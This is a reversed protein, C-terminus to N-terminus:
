AHRAQLAEAVAKYALKPNCNEDFPLPRPRRAFGPIPVYGTFLWSEPDALEWTIVAKVAPVRLAVNLLDSYRRAVMADRLKPDNPFTKDEVDMETLYIDVKKDALQGLFDGFQQADYRMDSLWHCELGVIDIRSGADRLEDILRLVGTRNVDTDAWEAGAENLALKAKPDARGARLFSRRIYDKGMADYWPGNRFGGPMGHQPYFPENVVDWSQIRGAYREVVEDIHRELWYIRRDKSLQGVWPPNWENWILNHGRIPIHAATAFDVLRDATAFDTQDEQPRVSWFKMSHDPTLIRAQHLYLATVRANALVEVDFATGFFLNRTAALGGLSPVAAIDDPAARAPSAGAATAGALLQLASRRTIKRSPVVLPMEAM